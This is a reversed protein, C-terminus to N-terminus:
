WLGILVISCNRLCTAHGPARGEVTLGLSAAGGSGVGARTSGTGALGYDGTAFGHEGLSSATGGDGFIIIMVSEGDLSTTAGGSEGLHVLQQDRQNGIQLLQQERQNGQKGYSLHPPHKSM